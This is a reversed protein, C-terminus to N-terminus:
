SVCKQMIFDSLIDYIMEKIINFAGLLEALFAELCPFKQEANSHRVM